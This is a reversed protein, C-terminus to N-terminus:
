KRRWRIGQPTDELIIGQATLMDRIEDARAWNKAKRAETREQILRDIEEDLLEEEEQEPVLGLVNNMAEIADLLAQLNATRREDESGQQM